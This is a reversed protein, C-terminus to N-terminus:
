STGTDSLAAASTSRPTTSPLPDGHAGREAFVMERGAAPEGKLAALFSRGTMESAPKLGAAELMTPALDEGSILADSVAGAEVHGPWRVILPVRIGLEYLTGKGRFLAAGNDGVFVVITNTALGRDNLLRLVRGVDDDMRSVMGYYLALDDRVAPTDPFDPPLRLKAPDYAEGLSEKRSASPVIRIWCASSSSSRGTRQRPPSSRMWNGSFITGGPSKSGHNSERM